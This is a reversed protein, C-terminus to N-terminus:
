GSRIRRVRRIRLHCAPCLYELPGEATALATQERRQQEAEGGGRSARLAIGQRLGPVLYPELGANHDGHAVAYPEGGVEVERLAGLGLEGHNQHARRIVLAREAPLPRRRAEERALAVHHRHLV